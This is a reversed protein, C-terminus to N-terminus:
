ILDEDDDDDDYIIDERESFDEDIDRFISGSGCKICRAEGDEWACQNDYHGCTLCEYNVCSM